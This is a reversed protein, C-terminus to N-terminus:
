RSQLESTHEESRHLIVWVLKEEGHDGDFPSELRASYFLSRVWSDPVHGLQRGGHRSRLLPIRVSRRVPTGAPISERAMGHGRLATRGGASHLYLAASAHRRECNSRM